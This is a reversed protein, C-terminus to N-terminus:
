GRAFCTRCRNESADPQSVAMRSADERAEACLDFDLGCVTEDQEDTLEHWAGDVEVFRIIEM